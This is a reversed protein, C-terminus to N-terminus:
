QAAEQPPVVALQPPADAVPASEAPPLDVLARAEDQTYVDGALGKVALDVRGAYDPRLIATTDFRAVMSRPLCQATLQQEVPAVYGLLTTSVWQGFVDQLNRYTLSPADLGLLVSPIGLAQCLQLSNWRRTEALQAGDADSALAQLTTGQPVV